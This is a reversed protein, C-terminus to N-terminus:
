LTDQTIMPTSLILLIGLLVLSVPFKFKQLKLSLSFNKLADLWFNVYCLLNNIISYVKDSILCKKDRHVWLVIPFHSYSTWPFPNLSLVCSNYAWDCHSFRYSTLWKWIHIKSYFKSESIIIWLYIETLWPIFLLIRFFSCSFINAYFIRNCLIFTTLYLIYKWIIKLITAASQM